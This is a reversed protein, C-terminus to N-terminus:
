VMVWYVQSSRRSMLGWFVDEHVVDGANLQTATPIPHRASLMELGDVGDRVHDPLQSSEFERSKSANVKLVCGDIRRQLDTKLIPEANAGRTIRHEPVTSWPFDLEVPIATLAVPWTLRGGFSIM